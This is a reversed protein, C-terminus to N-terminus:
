PIAQDALSMHTSRSVSGAVHVAPLRVTVAMLGCSSFHLCRKSSIDLSLVFSICGSLVQSSFGKTATEHVDIVVMAARCRVNCATSLQGIRRRFDKGTLDTCRLLQSDQCPRLDCLPM